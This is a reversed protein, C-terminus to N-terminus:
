ADSDRLYRLLVAGSPFPECEILQLKEQSGYPVLLPIGAGLIIPIVGIVYEAILGHARFSAALQGGGVLWSQKKPAPDTGFVHSLPIKRADLEELCQLGRRPGGVLLTIDAWSVPLPAAFQPLECVAQVCAEVAKNESVRLWQLRVQEFLEDQFM